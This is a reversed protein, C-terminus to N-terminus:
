LVLDCHVMWAQRSTIINNSYVNLTALFYQVSLKLLLLNSNKFAKVLGTLALTTYTSVEALINNDTVVIRVLCSCKVKPDQILSSYKYSM